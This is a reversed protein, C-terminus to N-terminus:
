MVIVCDCMMGPPVNTVSATAGNVAVFAANVTLSGATFGTVTSTAGAQPILPGDTGEAGRLISFDGQQTGNVSLAGSTSTPNTGGTASVAAVETSQGVPQMRITTNAAGPGLVNQNAIGGNNDLAFPARGCHNPLTFVKNAAWDALATLGRGGVPTLNLTTWFHEYIPLTDDNARQTAASTGKGFTTGNLWLTGAPAAAGYYGYLVTGRPARQAAYERTAITGSEDPASLERTTATTIGAVSITLVKTPDTNDRFTVGDAYADLQGGGDIVLKMNTPTVDGPLTRTGVHLGVSAGLGTALFVADLLDLDNNLGAVGGWTDFAAGVEPKRLNLNPTFSDAM